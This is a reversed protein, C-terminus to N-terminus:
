SASVEKQVASHHPHNMNVPSDRAVRSSRSAMRVLGNLLLDLSRGPFFSGVILGSGQVLRAWEGHRGSRVLLFM